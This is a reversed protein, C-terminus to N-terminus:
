KKVEGIPFGYRAILNNIQNDNEEINSNWLVSSFM